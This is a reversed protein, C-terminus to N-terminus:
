ITKRFPMSGGSGYTVLDAKVELNTPDIFVTRYESSELHNNLYLVRTSDKTSPAPRIAFLNNEAGVVENAKKIQAELSKPPGPNKVFLIDKYMWGEAFFSFAYLFGTLSAIFFFPGVFLGVFLHFKKLLSIM